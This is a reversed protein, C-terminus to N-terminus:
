LFGIEFVVIVVFVRFFDCLFVLFREKGPMMYPIFYTPSLNPFYLWCCLHTGYFTMCHTALNKSMLENGNKSTRKRRKLNIKNKHPHASALLSHQIEMSSSMSTPFQVGTRQLFLLHEELQAWGEAEM